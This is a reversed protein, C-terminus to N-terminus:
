ALGPMKYPREAELRGDYWRSGEALSANGVLLGCRDRPPLILSRNPSPACLHPTVAVFEGREHADLGIMAMLSDASSLASRAAVRTVAAARILVNVPAAVDICRQCWLLGHYGGSAMTQGAYPDLLDGGPRFVGGSWSVVGDDVLLGCVANVRPDFHAVASLELLGAHEAPNLLIAIWEVGPERAAAIVRKIGREEDGWIERADFTKVDQVARFATMRWMGTSTEIRNEEISLLASLGREKLLRTLVFRQADTTGSKGSTQVSATSGPHIRWAYIAERIHVPEENIALARTLTDYDHCWTGGSDTFAGIQRLFAVEMAM